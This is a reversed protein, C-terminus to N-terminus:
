AAAAEKQTQIANVYEEYHKRETNGFLLPFQAMLERITSNVKDSIERTQLSLNAQRALYIAKNAASQTIKIHPFFKDLVIELRDTNYSGFHAQVAQYELAADVPAKKALKVIADRVAIDLKRNEPLLNGKKAQMKELQYDTVWFVEDIHPHIGATDMADPMGGPWQHKYWACGYVSSQICGHNRVMWYQGPALRRPGTARTGGQRVTKEPPCDTTESVNVIQEDTLEFCEKIWAVGLELHRKDVATFVYVPRNALKGYTQIRVKRRVTKNFLDNVILTVRPLISVDIAQVYRGRTQRAVSSKGYHTAMEITDGPQGNLFGNDGDEEDGDYEFDSNRLSVLTNGHLNTMIGTYKLWVKAKEVRTVAQAVDAEMQAVLELHAVNYIERLTNTTDGDYSLADRSSTVDATGIPITVVTTFAGSVYPFSRNSPYLATGMRIFHSHSLESNPDFDADPYIAWNTGSMRAVPLALTMGSVNPPMDYAMSVFRMEKQFQKISESKAAFSVLIGRPENSPQNEVHTLSPIGDTGLFAIYMRKEGQSVVQTAEDFVPGTFSTIQFSDTYAFPSKSGLGFQGTQENTDEKTSEFITTYLVMVDEHSMGIGYDRVAFIPELTTPITVDFPRTQGAAIHADHANSCLERVVALVKNTYLSDILSRFAKGNAKITFQRTEGHLGEATAGPRINKPIM